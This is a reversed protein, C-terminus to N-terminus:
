GPKTNHEGETMEIERRRNARASPDGTRERARPGKSARKRNKWESASVATTINTTPEHESGLADRYLRLAPQGLERTQGAKVPAPPLWFGKTSSCWCCSLWYLYVEGYRDIAVSSGGEGAVTPYSARLRM